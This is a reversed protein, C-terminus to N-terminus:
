PDYQSYSLQKLYRSLASATVNDLGIIVTYLRMYADRPGTSNIDNLM